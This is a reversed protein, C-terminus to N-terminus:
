ADEGPADLDPTDPRPERKAGDLLRSASEAKLKEAAKQPKSRGYRTRNASAEAKDRAKDREKRAKNLNIPEAM